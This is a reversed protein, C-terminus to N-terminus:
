LKRALFYSVPREDNLLQTDNLLVEFGQKTGFQDALENEALLFRPNKPRSIKECGQMFTQYLVVGGPRLSNRIAPFLPRHLYRLVTILDLSQTDIYPSLSLLSDNVSYDIDGNELDAKQNTITCCHRRALDECRDLSGQNYDIGQMDWDHKALYVLDRGSGCAIDLGKGTTINFASSHIHIFDDIFSAPHWLAIPRPLEDASHYRNEDLRSLIKLQTTLPTQWPIYQAHLYNKDNFFAQCQQQNDDTCIIFFHEDTRPLEHMRQFLDTAEIHMSERARSQLFQDIPRCDLVISNATLPTPM